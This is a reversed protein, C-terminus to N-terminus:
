RPAAGRREYLSIWTGAGSAFASGFDRRSVQRYRSRLTDLTPVTDPDASSWNWEVLWVRRYDLLRRAQVSPPLENAYSAHHGRDPAPIAFDSPLYANPGAERSLYYDFLRTNPASYVIGDGPRSESAILRAAGESFVQTGGGVPRLGIRAQLALGLVIV